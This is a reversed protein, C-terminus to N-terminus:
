SINATILKKVFSVKILFTLTPRSINAHKNCHIVMQNQNFVTVTTM